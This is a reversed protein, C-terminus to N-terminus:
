KASIKYFIINKLYKTNHKIYITSMNSLKLMILVPITGM